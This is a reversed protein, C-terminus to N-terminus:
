AADARQPGQASGAGYLARAVRTTLTEKLFQQDAPDARLRSLPIM